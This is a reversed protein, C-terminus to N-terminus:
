AARQGAGVRRGAPVPRHLVGRLLRHGQRLLGPRLKRGRATQGIGTSLFVPKDFRTLNYLVWPAILVGGVVCGVVALKFRQRGALSRALFALPVLLLPFLLAMETRTLAGAGCALGFFVVNRTTPSRVFAYATWLVLAAVFVVLSESMVMGDNIWFFPYVAVITAAIVGVAAGAIRRGVLGVVVITAVGLLGSVVRHATVGDIGFTSWFALYITYLPPHGASAVEVGDFVYRIPNLFFKGDALANAQHHYYFADGWLRYGLYGPRDTTPRWWFVNMLRILLGLGAAGGLWLAFSGHRSRAPRAPTGPEDVDVSDTRTTETTATM